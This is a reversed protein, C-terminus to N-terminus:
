YLESTCEKEQQVTLPLGMVRKSNATYGCTRDALVYEARFRSDNGVSVNEKPTVTVFIGLYQLLLHPLQELVAQKTTLKDYCLTMTNSPRREAPLSLDTEEGASVIQLFRAVSRLKLELESPEKLKQKVKWDALSTIGAM